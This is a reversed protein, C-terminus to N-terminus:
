IRKMSVISETIFSRNEIELDPEEMFEDDIFSQLAQNFKEVDVDEKLVFEVSVNKM